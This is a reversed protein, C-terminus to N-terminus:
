YREKNARLNSVRIVSTLFKWTSITAHTKNTHLASGYFCSSFHSIKVIKTAYKNRRMRYFNSHFNQAYATLIPM